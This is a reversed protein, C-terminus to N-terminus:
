GRRKQEERLAKMVGPQAVHNTAPHCGNLSRTPSMQWQRRISDTTPLFDAHAFEVSMKDGAYEGRQIRDHVLPLRRFDHYAPRQQRVLFPPRPIPPLKRLVDVSPLSTQIM